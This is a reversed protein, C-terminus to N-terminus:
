GESELVRKMQELDGQVRGNVMRGILPGFLAFLPGKGGRNRVRVRTHGDGADDFHYDVVMPFPGSVTKMGLHSAPKFAVVETTYTMPRGMMKATREVRTGIGFAGDGQKEAHSLARIWRLDNAPDCVWAAVADRPQSIVVEATVDISVAPEQPFCYPFALEFRSASGARQGQSRM